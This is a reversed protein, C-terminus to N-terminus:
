RYRAFTRKRAVEVHTPRSGPHGMSPERDSLGHADTASRLRLPKAAAVGVLSDLAQRTDVLAEVLLSGM